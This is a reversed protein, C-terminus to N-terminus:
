LCKLFLADGSFTTQWDRCWDGSVRLRGPRLAGVNRGSEFVDPVAPRRTTFVYICVYMCVYMCVHTCVEMIFSVTCQHMCEYMCVNMCVYMCLYMCVICTYLHVYQIYMCVYMYVYMCVFMCVYMCVFMYVFMCVNIYVYCVYVYVCLCRNSSRQRVAYIERYFIDKITPDTLLIVTVSHIFAGNLPILPRQPRDILEPLPAVNFYKYSPRLRWFFLIAM